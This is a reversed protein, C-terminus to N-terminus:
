LQLIFERIKLRKGQQEIISPTHLVGLRKKANETLIYKEKNIKIEEININSILLVDSEKIEEKNSFIKEIDNQSGIVIIRMPMSLYSLPNFKFDKPYLVENDSGIVDFPLLTIPTHYITNNRTAFPLTAQTTQIKIAKTIDNWNIKEAQNKIATLASIEKIKFTQGYGIDVASVISCNFIFYLFLLIKQM